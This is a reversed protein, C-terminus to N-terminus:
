FRQNHALDRIWQMNSTGPFSANHCGDYGKGVTEPIKTAPLFIDVEKQMTENLAPALISAIADSLGETERLCLVRAMNAAGAKSWSKRRGSMRNALLTFVNSEMCGMNRAVLGENVRIPKGYQEQYPRLATKNGSFYVLLDNLKEYDDTGAVSDRYAEICNMLDSVNGAKLLEFITERAVKNGVCELIKKNRHYPDLQYFTNPLKATRKIWGAGDGNLFRVEVCSMDFKSALLGEKRRLFKKSGDFSACAVKEALAYRGQSVEECGTYCIGIKIERKKHGDQRSAGQMSLWLGDQEEFLVKTKLTGRGKNERALQANKDEAKELKDGVTQVINWVGTHSISEGTTSSITKAAERYSSKSAEDLVATVLLESFCGVRNLGLAEDLLYIVKPEGPDPNVVLYQVRRVECDGMKTKITRTRYGNHRYKNKNRTRCLEQDLEHLMNAFGIRAAKCGEQYFKEELTNFNVSSQTLSM